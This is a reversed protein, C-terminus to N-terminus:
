EQRIELPKDKSADYNDLLDQIKNGLQSRDTVKLKFGNSSQSPDLGKPTLLYYGPMPITLESTYHRPIESEFFEFDVVARPAEDQSLRHLTWFKFENDQSKDLSQLQPAIRFTVRLKAPFTEPIIDSDTLPYLVEIPLNGVYIISQPVQEKKTPDASGGSSEPDKELERLLSGRGKQIELLSTNRQLLKSKDPFIIELESDNGLTIVKDKFFGRVPVLLPLKMLITSEQPLLFCRGKLCRLQAEPANVLRTKQGEPLKGLLALPAVTLAIMLALDIKSRIQAIVAM